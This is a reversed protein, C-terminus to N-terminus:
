NIKESYNRGNKLNQLETHKTKKIGKKVWLKLYDVVIM